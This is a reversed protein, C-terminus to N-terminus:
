CSLAPLLMVLYGELCALHTRKKNSTEDVIQQLERNYEGIIGSAVAPIM